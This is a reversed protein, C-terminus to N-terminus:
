AGVKARLEGLTCEKFFLNPVLRDLPLLQYAQTRLRKATAPM